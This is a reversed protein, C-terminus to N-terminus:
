ERLAIEELVPTLEDAVKTFIQESYYYGDAIRQKLKKLYAEQASPDMWLFQGKRLAPNHPQMNMITGDKSYPTVIWQILGSAAVSQLGSTTETESVGSEPSTV